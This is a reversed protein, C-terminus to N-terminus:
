CAEKLSPPGSDRRSPDSAHFTEPFPNCFSKAALRPSRVIEAQTLVFQRM